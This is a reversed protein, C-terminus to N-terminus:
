HHYLISQSYFLLFLMIVSLMPAQIVISEFENDTKILVYQYHLLLSSIRIVILGIHFAHLSLMQTM